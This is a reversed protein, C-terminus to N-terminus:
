KLSWRIRKGNKTRIFENPYDMMIRYCLPSLRLEDIPKDSKDCIMKAIAKTHSKPYEKLVEIILLKTEIYTPAIYEIEARKEQKVIPNLCARLERLRDTIAQKEKEYHSILLEIDQKTVKM